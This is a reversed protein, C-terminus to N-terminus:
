KGQGIFFSFFKVSFANRGVISSIREIMEVLLPLIRKLCLLSLLTIVIRLSFSMSCM